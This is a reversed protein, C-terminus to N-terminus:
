QLPMRNKDRRSHNRLAAAICLAGAAAAYCAVTAATDLRVDIAAWGHAAIRESLANMAGASLDVARSVFPGAFNVPFMIWVATLLVTAAAAAIAAPGAAIGALPIVGFMHSVLPATAATAVLGTVITGIVFNCASACVRLLLPRKRGCRIGLRRILPVGCVIIATVATYSMIFGADFVVHPDFCMSIFAACSLANLSSYDDSTIFSTQLMTFMIAARIASPPMGTSLVYLWLVATSIVSRIVRGNSFAHLWFLLGNVLLFVIGVHLGSLALLHATGARSYEGRLERGLLSTDGTGVAQAVAMNAPHLELRGVRSVARRHLWHRVESSHREPKTQLISGPHLYMTGAYGRRLMMGGYGDGAFRRVSGRCVIRMGARLSLATDSYIRLRGEARHWRGDDDRLSIIRADNQRSHAGAATRADGDIEVEWVAMGSPLVFSGRALGTLAAGLFLAGTLICAAAARRMDKCLAVAALAACVAVGAASIWVPPMRWSALLIGAALAVTAPLMPAQETLGTKM